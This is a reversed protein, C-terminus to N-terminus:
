CDSLMHYWGSPVKFNWYSTSKAGPKTTGMLVSTVQAAPGNMWHTLFEDQIDRARYAPNFKIQDLVNRAQELCQAVSIEPRYRDLVISGKQLYCLWGYQNIHPALTARDVGDLVKIPPYSLFDWDSIRLEIRVPSGRCALTGAFRREGRSSGIPTFGRARLDRLVAGLQEDSPM